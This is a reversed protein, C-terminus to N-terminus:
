EDIIKKIAEYKTAYYMARENAKNLEDQTCKLMSWVHNIQNGMDYGTNLFVEIPEDEYKLEPFLSDNNLLYGEEVHFNDCNRVPCEWLNHTRVPKYKVFFWLHNYKDRAVWM